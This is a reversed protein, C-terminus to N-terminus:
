DKCDVELQGFGDKLLELADTIAESVGETTQVPRSVQNEVSMCMRDHTESIASAENSMPSYSPNM